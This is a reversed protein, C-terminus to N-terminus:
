ATVESIPLELIFTTGSRGDSEVIITGGFRAMLTKVWWLGFGLNSGQDPSQTSYNFEFIQDHLDHAIGPGTDRVRIEVFKELTKGSIFIKGGKISYTGDEKKVATTAIAGVDSGAEAETICMTGAWTGDFMKELYTEKQEDTGFIEVLKASGHTLNIFNSFGMNAAEFLERCCIEIAKPLGQGGVEVDDSIVNWGGESIVEYPKHFSEPVTVKGDEFKCGIKDADSNTPAIVNQALKEAEKLTM